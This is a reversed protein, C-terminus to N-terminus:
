SLNFCTKNLENGITYLETKIQGLYQHLEGRKMDKIASYKVTSQLRGILFALHAPSYIHGDTKLRDFHKVLKDLSYIVSRPFQSNLVVQELVNEAELGQRYTKLYLEYGGISLLLHRWYNTNTVLDPNHDVSGFKIHLINVSQISRELYKGIQMFSDGENRAM